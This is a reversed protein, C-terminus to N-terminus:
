RKLGAQWNLVITVPSSAPAEAESPTYLLFRGDPSVDYSHFGVVRTDFLPVAVGPEFPPGLKVPVAMMKRDPAIYYLETGDRRWRPKDGGATSIQWKGVAAAPVRDPAFGQVYVERRGSEDSSYAIWKGDPSFQGFTEDAQTVLFPIPKREGSPSPEIPLIWLDQRQATHDDYILFRGDPSFGNPHKVTPSRVLLPEPAGVGGAPMWYLDGIANLTLTATFAIHGDPSVLADSETGEGPNVRSFIARALEATWARTGQISGLAGSLVTAEGKTVAVRKGDPSLQVGSAGYELRPGLQGLRKGQRDFWLLEVTAASARGTRFALAGTPSASFWGYSGLNGVDEAIPIADGKLQSRGDFAQAMLSGERLFLLFGESSSSSPVYVPDSDTAVLRTTSQSEPTADLSGLYIGSNEAVRSARHYLFHHGDPLFAPGAHQIEQRSADIKTVLSAPGFSDSVRLLGTSSAGFLIVGEANWAGERYGGNYECMTQPPGGTADVKKLRGPFGNVGFALFRSDPSWIPGAIAGETGPLPRADLADLSRVWLIARGDPGPAEFAIRRGDPSLVGTSAFTTAEPPPIQFRIPAAVPARERFHVFALTVTSAIAIAAVGWAASTVRSSRGPARSPAASAVGADAPNALYKQIAVRAEGIDRLRSRTDRDLCRRLMERIVPPTDCPLREFDIKARLVDALTHSITEGDFLRQGTLMEWLMVGFSWIDARKDVTKGAAQEPSMYAATGLIVGARTAAMTLTPSHTTDIESFGADQAVAALGFDLVKVAGDHTVMVNAPKLDRHIVGKEHAADLAEAVQRAITLAEDLPLGRAKLGSGQALREALTSGEVLEM